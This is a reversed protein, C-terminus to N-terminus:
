QSPRLFLTGGILALAVGVLIIGTGHGFGFLYAILMAIGSLSLVGGFTRM